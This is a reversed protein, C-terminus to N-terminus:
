SSCTPLEAQSGYPQNRLVTNASITEEDPWGLFKGLPLMAPLKLTVTYFVIDDSGGLGTNGAHKADDWHNNKNEDVFCEGADYQGDNDSDTYTEEKDVGSFQYYSKKEIEPAHAKSFLTLQGKVYDDIQTPTKNGITALRAASHLTGELVSQAYMRYGFDFLALLTITLPLIVFGMEVITAGRSDRRLRRVGLVLRRIM